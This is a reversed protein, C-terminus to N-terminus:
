PAHERVKRLLEAADGKCIWGAVGHEIAKARLTDADNSSYFLIPIRAVRENRALVSVLGDGSLAPMNIDLLVLDPQAERILKSAGFPSSSSTVRYGDRELQARTTTLLREDDDILVIHKTM